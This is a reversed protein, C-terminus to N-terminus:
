RVRTSTSPALGVGILLRRIPGPIQDWPVLTLLARLCLVGSLAAALVGIGGALTVPLTLFGCFVGATVFLLLLGTRLNEPSWRFGSMRRVVAYILLGHFVYSGFFAIGAGDLGFWGVCVWTLGVNVITWALETWFYINQRGKAMIIFGMPWTIVRLAVGLCIWRLIGVAGGFESSYLLAIVVPALALTALAGPGGLLMGVRAQENVLRNCAVNDNACATLRPYFDAGMAQLIFGVYFGGLTWAAQYLGTAEFGVRHLVIIRVVYAAGMMMLGSAMFAAGLKFLAAGDQLMQRFPVSPADVRVARSYWWSILASLAAWVILSPVIGRERLFFVLLISS